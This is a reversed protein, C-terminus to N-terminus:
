PQFLSGLHSLGVGVWHAWQGCGGTGCGWLEPVGGPNPVGGREPCSHWQMVVSQPLFKEWYGVQVEGSHM